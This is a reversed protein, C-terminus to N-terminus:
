NESSEGPDPTLPIEYVKTKADRSVVVAAPEGEEPKAILAKALELHQAMNYVRGTLLIMRPSAYLENMKILM